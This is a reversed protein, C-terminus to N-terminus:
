TFSGFVLVVPKHGLYDHLSVQAKGDETRLTFDPAEQGVSPGPFLSGLEGSLLGHLLVVPAPGAAAAEKGPKPPPPFLAQRLDDPTVHDKGQAMRNFLAEWEERTIKGNSDRDMMRFLQAAMGAQRAYASRDSWDFDDATLEGDHNRDLRDFFEPPGKFDARALAGTPKVDHRRALWEWGYRTQGAHFWGEGPGMQSGGVIAAVMEAAELHRLDAVGGRVADCYRLPDLWGRPPQPPAPAAAHCPVAALLGALLLVATVPRSM